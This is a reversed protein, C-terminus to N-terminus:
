SRGPQTRAVRDISVGFEWFETMYWLPVLDSQECAAEYSLRRIRGQDDLWIFARIAERQAESTAASASCSYPTTGAIDAWVSRDFQAATLELAYRSTASGQIIEPEGPVLSATGALAIPDLACLPHRAVKADDVGGIPEGWEGSKKAIWLVGGEFYLDRDSGVARDAFVQFLRLVPRALVSSRQRREAAMRETLLRDRMWVRDRTFDVIGEGRFDVAEPLPNGLRAAVLSHAGGTAFTQEVAQRPDITQSPLQMTM